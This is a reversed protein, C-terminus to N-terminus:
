IPQLFPANLEVYEIQALCLFNSLYKGNKIMSTARIHLDLDIWCKQGPQFKEAVTVHDTMFSQACMRTGLLNM